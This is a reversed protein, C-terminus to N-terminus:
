KVDIVGCAIRDGANGTNRTATTADSANATYQAAASGLPINGFNDAGSHLIVVRDFLEGGIFRDTTFELHVTGDRNFYLSTLDGAHSGHGDNSLMEARTPGTYLGLLEDPDEDIDQAELGPSDQIRITVNVLLDRLPKPIAALESEAMANFRESSVRITKAM